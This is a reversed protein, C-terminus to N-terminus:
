ASIHRRADTIEKDIIVANEILWTLSRVEQAADWDEPEELLYEELEAIRSFIQLELITM